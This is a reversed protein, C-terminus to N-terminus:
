STKAGKKVCFSSCYKKYNLGPYNRKAVIPDWIIKGKADRLLPPTSWGRKHSWVGSPHHRYFHFDGQYVQRDGTTVMVIKHSGLPCKQYPSRLQRVKGPNDALVRRSLESCNSMPVADYIGARTGPTSKISHKRADGIAYAYCNAHRVRRLWNKQTFKPEGGNPVHPLRMRKRKPISSKKRILACITSKNTKSTIPAKGNYLKQVADILEPKTMREIDNRLEKCGM